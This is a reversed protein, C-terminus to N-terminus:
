GARGSDARLCWNPYLRIMFIFGTRLTLIRITDKSEPSNFESRSDLSTASVVCRNQDAEESRVIAVWPTSATKKWQPHRSYTLVLLFPPESWAEGNEFAQFYM